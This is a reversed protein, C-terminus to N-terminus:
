IEITDACLIDDQWWTLIQYKHQCDDTTYQTISNPMSHMIDFNEGDHKDICILCPAAGNTNNRTSTPVIHILLDDKKIVLHGFGTGKKDDSRVEILNSNINYGMAATTSGPVIYTRFNGDAFSGRVIFSNDGINIDISTRGPESVYAYQNNASDVFLAMIKPNPNSDSMKLPAILARYKDGNTAGPSLVELDYLNYVFTNLSKATSFDNNYIDDNAEEIKKSVSNVHLDFSELKSADVEATKNDPVIEEITSTLADRDYHPHTKKYEAKDSYMRRDSEEEIEKITMQGDGACFGASISYKVGDEDENTLQELRDKVIQIKNTAVVQGMGDVLVSFEDGGVRYVHEEGFTEKLVKSIGTLLINGYSHGYTDNIMKLNNADFSFIGLTSIPIKKIDNAYAHRNLLGTLEDHIYYQKLKANEEKIRQIISADEASINSTLNDNETENLLTFQEQNIPEIVNFDKAIDKYDEGLIKKIKNADSEYKVSDIMISIKDNTGNISKIYDAKLGERLLGAFILSEIDIIENLQKESLNNQFVAIQENKKLSNNQQLMNVYYHKKNLISNTVKINSM